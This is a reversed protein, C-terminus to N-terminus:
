TAGMIPRPDPAEGLVGRALGDIADVGALPPLQASAAARWGDAVALTGGGVEFVRGTVDRARPGLLWCVLPAVHEPAMPDAEPAAEPAPGMWSTMRTRAVPAVANVTAGYRGLEDAAVLTFAAVAAKAASYVAEGRFGYLGAHSTTTVLAAGVPEGAKARERWHAGAARALVFTGRVHVALVADVDDESVRLIPGSRLVGANAVVADLRGCQELAADVLAQAGATASADGAVRVDAPADELEERDVDGAVVKAGQARLAAAYARGLGRAAGTVVVVRGDLEM